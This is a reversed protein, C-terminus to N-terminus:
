NGAQETLKAQPCARLQSEVDLKIIKLAIALLTSHFAKAQSTEPHPYQFLIKQGNFYYLCVTYIHIYM